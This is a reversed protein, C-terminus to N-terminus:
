WGPSTDPERSSEETPTACARFEKVFASNKHPLSQPLNTQRGEQPTTYDHRPTTKMFLCTKGHHTITRRNHMGHTPGPCAVALSSIPLTSAASHRHPHQPHLGFLTIVHPLRFGTERGTYAPPVAKPLARGTKASSAHVADTIGVLRVAQARERGIRGVRSIQELQDVIREDADRVIKGGDALGGLAPLDGLVTQGPGERDPLAEGPGVALREGRLVHLEAVFEVQAGTQAIRRLERADLLNAKDVRVRHLHEGLGGLRVHELDGRGNKGLM